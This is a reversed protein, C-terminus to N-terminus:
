GRHRISAARVKETGKPALSVELAASTGQPAASALTSFCFVFQEERPTSIIGEQQGRCGSNGISYYLRCKVPASSHSMSFRFSTSIHWRTRRLPSLPHTSLQYATFTSLLHAFFFQGSLTAALSPENKPSRARSRAV